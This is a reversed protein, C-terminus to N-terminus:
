MVDKPQGLAIKQLAKHLDDTEFDTDVDISGISINSLVARIKEDTLLNVVDWVTRQCEKKMVVPVSKESQPGAEIKQKSILPFM